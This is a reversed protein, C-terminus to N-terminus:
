GEPLDSKRLCILQTPLWGNKRYFDLAPRNQGDALLQLRTAGHQVAWAALTALLAAGIGQGRLRETVV